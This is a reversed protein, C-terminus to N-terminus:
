AQVFKIFFIEVTDGFLCYRPMKIGVIGACCQGSHIGIRVYLVEDPLHPVYCHSLSERIELAFICMEQAHQKFPEPVGSAVMYADGITEVKYLNYKGITKDFMSYLGNLLEVLEQPSSKAAIETFGVIDSFFITASEFFEAKVPKKKKLSEAVSKPLMQYLLVETKKKEKALEKSKEAKHVAYSAVKYTLSNVCHTYWICLSICILVVATLVTTYIIQIRKTSNVIDEIEEKIKVSLEVRLEQIKDLYITNHEFWKNALENREASSFKLCDNVFNSGMLFEKITLISTFINSIEKIKLKHTKEVYSSYMFSLRLWLDNQNTAKTLYALDNPSMNCSTIWSSGQCTNNLYNLIKCYSLKDPKWCVFGRQIGIENGSALLAVIAVLDFNKLGIPLDIFRATWSMLENIIYTYYFMTGNVNKQPKKRFEIIKNLLDEKTEYIEERVKLGGSPWTEVSYFIKTTANQIHLMKEYADKNTENSSLYTATIGREVQLNTILQDILFYQQLDSAARSARSEERIASATQIGAFVILTAVPLILVMLLKAIQKIRQRMGTDLLTKYDDLENSETLSQTSYM